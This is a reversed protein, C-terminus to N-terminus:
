PRPLPSRPTERPPRVRHSLAFFHDLNPANQGGQQRAGEAARRDGGGAIDDAGAIGQRKACEAEADAEQDQDRDRKQAAFAPRGFLIPRSDGPEAQQEERYERSQEIRGQQERCRRARSRTSASVPRLVTPTSM